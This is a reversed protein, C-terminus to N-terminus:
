NVNLSSGNMALTRFARVEVTPMVLRPAEARVVVESMMGQRNATANGRVNARVLAAGALPVTVLAAAAVAVLVNNM